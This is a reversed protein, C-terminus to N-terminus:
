LHSSLPLNAQGGTVSPAIQRQRCPATLHRRAAHRPAPWFRRRNGRSDSKRRHLDDRCSLEIRPSIQSRRGARDLDHQTVCAYPHHLTDVRRRQRPHQRRHPAAPSSRSAHPAAPIPPSAVSRNGGRRAVVAIDLFVGRESGCGLMMVRQRCRQALRRCAERRDESAIGVARSTPGHHRPKWAATGSLGFNQRFSSGARPSACLHSIGIGACWQVLASPGGTRPAGGCPGSPSLRLEVGM